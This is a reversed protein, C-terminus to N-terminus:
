TQDFHDLLNREACPSLEYYRLGTRSTGTASSAVIRRIVPSFSDKQEYDYREWSGDPNTVSEVQRYRNREAPDQYFTYSTTKVEGNEEEIEKVIEQGWAFGRFVRTRKYIVVDHDRKVLIETRECPDDSNIESTKLAVVKEENNTMTWTDTASVYHFETTEAVGKNIRTIQLTDMAPPNPNRFRWIAFPEGTVNYLSVRQPQSVGRLLKLSEGNELKSRSVVSEGSHYFRIEYEWRNLPVIDIFGEPSRIQRLTFPTSVNGSPTFIVDLEPDESGGGPSGLAHPTYSDATLKTACLSIPIGRAISGM